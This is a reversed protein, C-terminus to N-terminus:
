VVRTVQVYGHGSNHGSYSDIGFGMGGSGTQGGSRSTPYSPDSYV